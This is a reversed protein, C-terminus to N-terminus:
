SIKTIDIQLYFFFINSYVEGMALYYMAGKKWTKFWMIGNSFFLFFIIFTYLKKGGIRIFFNGFEILLIPKM